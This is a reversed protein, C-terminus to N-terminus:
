STPSSLRGGVPAHERPPSRAWAGRAERESGAEWSPACPAARSPRARGGPAVELAARVSGRRRAAFRLSGGATRAPSTPRVSPAPLAPGAEGRGAGGAGGRARRRGAAAAASRPPGLRWGLTKRRSGPSTLGPLDPLPIAPLPLLLVPHAQPHRPATIPPLPPVCGEPEWRQEPRKAGAREERRGRTDQGCGSGLAPGPEGPLRTFCRDRSTAPAARRLREGPHLARQQRGRRQSRAGAAM